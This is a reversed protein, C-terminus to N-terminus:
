QRSQEAIQKGRGNWATDGISLAHLRVVVRLFPRSPKLVDASARPTDLYQYAHRQRATSLLRAPATFRGGLHGAELSSFGMFRHRSYPRVPSDKVRALTRCDGTRCRGPLATTPNGGPRHNSSARM